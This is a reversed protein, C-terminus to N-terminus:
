MGGTKNSVIIGGTTTPSSTWYSTTGGPSNNGERTLASSTAARPLHSPSPPHERVGLHAFWGRTGSHLDATNDHESDHAQYSAKAQTGQSADHESQLNPNPFILPDDLRMHRHCLNRSCTAVHTLLHIAGNVIRSTLHFSELILECDYGEPEHNQRNANDNDLPTMHSPHVAAQM